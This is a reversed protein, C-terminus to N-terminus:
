QGASPVPSGPAPSGPAPSGPAPSGPAPSGPGPAGPAPPEAAPVSPSGPAPSDPAPGTPSGPAPSGPAPSGPREPPAPPKPVVAETYTQGARLPKGRFLESVTVFTFGRRKLGDLVKPISDVSPKHIDHFLVIGGRRPQSVGVKADRSASRYRWDLTDVSWLILPMGVAQGVRKDTAGYPPRMLTPRVGGSAQSIAQQTRQVESQVRATSLSTLQPHSWSHNALEHGELAMRRVVAGHSPVNEGLMFFTARAGGSRLTGLLRDTYPGPGDDFTLAVCQVKDCDIQRPPPPAARPAKRGAAVQQGATRAQKKPTHGCGTVLLLGVGVAAFVGFGRTQM